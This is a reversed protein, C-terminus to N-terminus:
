RNTKNFRVFTYKILDILEEERVRQDVKYKAFNRVGQARLVDEDLFFGGNVNSLLIVYCSDVVIDVTRSKQIVSEGGLVYRVASTDIMTRPWLTNVRVNHRKFEESWALACLSMGFKQLFYGVSKSWKEADLNIQPSM